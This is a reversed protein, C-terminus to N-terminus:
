YMPPMQAPVAVVKQGRDRWQSPPAPQKQPVAPQHRPRAQAAPQQAVPAGGGPAPPGMHPAVAPLQQQMQVWALEGQLAQPAAQVRVHRQQLLQACTGEAAKVAGVEPMAQLRAARRRQM